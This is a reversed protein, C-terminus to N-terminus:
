EIVFEVRRNINSLNKSIQAGDGGDLIINKNEDVLPEEEGKSDAIMRSKSIGFISSLNDIVANARKLALRYNNGESGVSDAFGIVRLKFTPNKKMISAIIALREYNAYQVKSSNFDFYISPLYAGKGAIEQGQFNVTAGKKTNPELDQSNPVGDLDDDLERGNSDVNVGPSSFPDLDKYDAIGDNDVDLPRGSGDVAVGSPTNKDLDFKDAVGDGDTDVSLGEIEKTNQNVQNSVVDIPNVWEMSKENKGFVYSFGLSLNTFGESLPFDSENMNDVGDGFPALCTFDISTQIKDSIRYKFGLSLPIALSNDDFDTTNIPQGNNDSVIGEGNYALFGIGGGLYLSFKRYDKPLDFANLINFTGEFSFLTFTSEFTYKNGESNFIGESNALGGALFNGSFGLSPTVQKDLSFGYGLNTGESNYEGLETLMGIKTSVSFSNYQQAFSFTTFFFAVVYISFSKMM